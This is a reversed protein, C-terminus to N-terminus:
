ATAVWSFFLDVCDPCLQTGRVDRIIQLAKDKPMPERYPRESTLAHYIDAVATMRAWLSIQTGKLGEPYGKGDFREHHNLVVPLTKALSPIPRLIDAGIIPHRKINEYEKDTLRGPKLLIADPIGIKGLDHLRAAIELTEIEQPTSDLKQALGVVIGAVADSHGKTYQDRAELAQILSSISALLLRQETELREKDKLLLRFHDSLLKEALIVVQDVNFPKVIYASAGSQMLQRMKGRDSESSMTIFPISAFEPIAHVAQCFLMGDMEPMNLDSVILDPKCTELLKLAAKGNPATMVPFGEDHFGKSVYERIVTSDDVVLIMWQRIQTAKYLLKEVVGCLQDKANTKTVYAAAGAQFGKEIDAEQEHSSLIVVPITNTVHLSKLRECLTFGDMQPMDVDTIILDFAGVIAKELGDQGNEAETILADIKRLVVLLGRRMAASDDVVLIKPKQKGNIQQGPAPIATTSGSIM